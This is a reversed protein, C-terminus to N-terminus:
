SLDELTEYNDLEGKANLDQVTFGPEIGKSKLFDHLGQVILFQQVETPNLDNTTRLNHFARVSFDKIRNLDKTTVEYM